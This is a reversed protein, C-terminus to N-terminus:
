PSEKERRLEQLSEKLIAAFREMEEPTLGFKNPKNFDPFGHGNESLMRGILDDDDDGEFRSGSLPSHSFGHGSFHSLTPTYKKEKVKSNYEEDWEIQEKDSLFPEVLWRFEPIKGPRFQLGMKALAKEIEKDGFSQIIVTSLEDVFVSMPDTMHFASRMEEKNNFVTSLFWGEQGLQKITAMDTASWFVNMNAHSHWWFRLDGKLGAKQAKHHQFMLKGIAEDKIDTSTGTNEQELLYVEDVMFTNTKPDYVVNGLGSVEYSGAKRCWYMIKQFAREDIQVKPNLM